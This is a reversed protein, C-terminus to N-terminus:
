QPVKIGLRRIAIEAIEAPDNITGAGMDIVARAINETLPDNRDVVSLLRMAKDFALTLVEIENTGLGSGALLRRIPM